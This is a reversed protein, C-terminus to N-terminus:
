SLQQIYFKYCKVFTKIRGKDGNDLLDVLIMYLLGRLIKLSHIASIAASIHWNGELFIITVGEQAMILSEKQLM